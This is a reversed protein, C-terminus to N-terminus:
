GRGQQAPSEGGRVATSLMPQVWQAVIEGGEEHQPIDFLISDAATWAGMLGLYTVLNVSVTDIVANVPTSPPPQPRSPAAPPLPPPCRLLLRRPSKPKFVPIKKRFQIKQHMAPSSCIRQTTAASPNFGCLDGVLFLHNGTKGWKLWRAALTGVACHFRLPLAASACRIRPNFWEFLIAVSRCPAMDVGSPDSISGRRFLAFLIAPYDSFDAMNKAM